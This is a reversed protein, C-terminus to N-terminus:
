NVKYFRIRVARQGSPLSVPDLTGIFANQGLWEYKGVPAEFVPHTRTVANPVKGRCSVATNVVNIVAGDDTKLMYDAKLQRCGDPRILQWDWGGGMVTGKLGPGSFMGGTIPIINREGLVTKGVPIDPGLTVVEEFAFELSPAAPEAAQAAMTTALAAAALIPSALNM